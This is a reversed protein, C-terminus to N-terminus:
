CYPNSFFVLSNVKETLNEFLDVWKPGGHSMDWFEIELELVHLFTV